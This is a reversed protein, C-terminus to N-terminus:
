IKKVKVTPLFDLYMGIYDDDTESIFRVETSFTICPLPCDSSDSGLYLDLLKESLFIDIIKRM